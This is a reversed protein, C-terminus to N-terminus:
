RRRSDARYADDSYNTRAVGVIRADPPLKGRQALSYLSPILKRWTLDGSAGFIVVTLPHAM